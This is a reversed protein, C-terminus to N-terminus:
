AAARDELAQDFRDLVTAAVLPHAGLPEAMSIGHDRAYGAVRDTLLGHALFWPVIMMREAGRGRLQRAADRLSPNPGTAFATQAGAWRTGSALKQAVTATRANVAERSSGVAVVLVGVRGDLRSVGADALREHLVHVLRDDEGLVDTQAVRAAGSDAILAPIDVQAHYADALLLPAVVAGRKVTSLVDRLNPTSRECFAVRVDLGLRMARIREVVAHTNAAARPDRSGHATVVLTTV